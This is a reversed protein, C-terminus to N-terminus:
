FITCWSNNDARGDNDSMKRRRYQDRDTLSRRHHRRHKRSQDDREQHGRPAYQQDFSCEARSDRVRHRM